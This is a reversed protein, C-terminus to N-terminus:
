QWEKRVTNGRVTRMAFLLDLLGKHYPIFVKEEIMQKIKDKDAWMVEAVEEQLICESLQLGPREVLYYDFFGYTGNITFVAQNDSLDVDLGLEEKTERKAAMRSTDGSQASGGASLDWMGPWGKKWPQRKQILMEGKENFICVNVVIHREGEALPDGRRHTKGTKTREIDYLDWIEDDKEGLGM